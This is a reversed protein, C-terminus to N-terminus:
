AMMVRAASHGTVPCRSARLGGLVSLPAPRPQGTVRRVVATATRGGGGESASSGRRRGGTVGLFDGFIWRNLYGCMGYRKKM